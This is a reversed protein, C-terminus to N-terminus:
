EHNKIQSRKQGPGVMLLETAMTRATKHRVPDTSECVVVFVKKPLRPFKMLLLGARARDKTAGKRAALLRPGLGLLIRIGGGGANKGATGGMPM